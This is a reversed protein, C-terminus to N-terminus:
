AAAGLVDKMGRIGRSWTQQRIQRDLLSMCVAAIVAGVIGRAFLDVAPLASVRGLMTLGLSMCATSLLAAALVPPKVRLDLSRRSVLYTALMLLGYASTTAWAAGALGWRPLMWLNLLLNVAAGAVSLGALKFTGGTVLLGSAVLFNMEGMFVGPLLYAMLPASSRYKASTLLVLLEESSALFLAGGLIAVAVSYTLVQSVFGSTAARGDSEWLRFIVPLLALKLSGFVALSLAGVLDYPVVYTAVADLGLFREILFRDGYDLVFSSYLGVSLPAGYAFAASLHSRSLTPRGFIGRTALGSLCIVAVLGEGVVSAVIVEYAELGHALHIGVAVALGVYRAALPAIAAALAREQARYIQYVVGLVARIIVILSAVRLCHATTGQPVWWQLVILTGVAVVSGSVLSGALMTGCFEQLQRLGQQSRAYYFRTTAEAFGLRGVLALIGVTAFTLNVLGYQEKTLARTLIPLSVLGAAMGLGQFLFYVGSSTFAQRYGSVSNM